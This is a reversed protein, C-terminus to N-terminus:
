IRFTIIYRSIEEEVTFSLQFLETSCFGIKLLLQFLSVPKHPIKKADVTPLFLGNAIGETISVILMPDTCIFDVM